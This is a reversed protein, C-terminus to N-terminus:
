MAPTAWGENAPPANGEGATSPTMKGEVNRPVAQPLREELLHPRRHRRGGGGRLSQIGAGQSQLIQRQLAACGLACGAKNLGHTQRIQSRRDARRATPAAFRTARLRSTTERM